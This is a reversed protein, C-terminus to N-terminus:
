FFDDDRLVTEVISTDIAKAARKIHNANFPNSKVFILADKALAL